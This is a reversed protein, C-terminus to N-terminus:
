STGQHPEQSFDGCFEPIYCEMASSPEQIFVNSLGMCEVYDVMAEYHRPNLRASLLPHERTQAMPTYQSMISIYISDGYTKALYDVIKKTDFLLGPLMLHRVVVGKKLTGDEGQLIDGAIDKMLALAEAATEFYGPAMSFERAYKDSYYKIDPLFVDVYGRLTELTEAKEYGGCNYVVPLELGRDRAIDLAERIGPAYHTPTVLNINHAGEKQLRVFEEALEPATVYRGLGKHSLDYNQCYSCKMTCHSFFVTGSGRSGSICPEEWHHLAARAIRIKNDAGCFGREGARRDAGCERPCLRCSSYM